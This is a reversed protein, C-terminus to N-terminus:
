SCIYICTVYKPLVERGEVKGWGCISLCFEVGRLREGVV